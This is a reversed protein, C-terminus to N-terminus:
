APPFSRGLDDTTGGDAREMAAATESALWQLVELQAASARHREAWYIGIAALPAHEGVPVMALSRVFTPRYADIPIRPDVFVDEVVAPKGSMMVWGSICSTQPFRRGKWLPGIADEDAYYCSDGDKLVFTAGDAGSLERAAHRAVRMIYALDAASAFRSRLDRHVADNEGGREFPM